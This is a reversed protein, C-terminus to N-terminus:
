LRFHPIHSFPRDRGNNLLNFRDIGFHPVCIDLEIGAKVLEITKHLTHHAERKEAVDWSSPCQLLVLCDSSGNSSPRDM